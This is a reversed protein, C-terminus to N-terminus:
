NTRGVSSQLNSVTQAAHAAIASLPKEINSTAIKVVDGVSAIVDLGERQSTVMWIRTILVKEIWDDREHQLVRTRFFDDILNIALSPSKSHLKRIHHMILKFNPDSLVATQTIRWLVDRYANSDFVENNTASLIEMKLLLVVLKDGVESELLQALNQAKDLAEQNQLALLAKILTQMISLRLENEDRGFKELEQNTLVEYSRDLWKVAMGYQKQGLMEKGMEFVTDALSIATDFDICKKTNIAQNYMHEAAEIRDQRWALCTRMVFYQASLRKYLEVDEPNEHADQKQLLGDYSAVKELVRTALDPQRSELCSKAAKLGIKFLRVVNSVTGREGSQACDLLLFAYVRAMLLLLQWIESEESSHERRLRTCLNWLATGNSDLDEYRQIAYLGFGTPFRDLAKELRSILPVENSPPTGLPSKSCLQVQLDKAFSLISNVRKEKEAKDAKEARVVAPPGHTPM